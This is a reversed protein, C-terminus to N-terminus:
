LSSTLNSDMYLNSLEIGNSNHGFVIGGGHRKDSTFHLQTHWVGAGSIKLNDAEINVQKTSISVDRQFISLNEALKLKRLLGLYPLQTMVIMMPLHM